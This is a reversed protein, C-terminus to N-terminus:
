FRPELKVVQEEHRYRCGQGHLEEGRPYGEVNWCKHVTKWYGSAEDFVQYRHFRLDNKGWYKSYDARAYEDTDGYKFWNMSSIEARPTGDEWFYKAVMPCADCTKTSELTLGGEPSFFKEHAYDNRYDLYKGGKVDRGCLIGEYRIQNESYFERRIGCSPIGTVNKRKNMFDRLSDPRSPSEEDPLIAQVERSLTGDEQYDKAHLDTTGWSSGTQSGEKTQIYYTLFETENKLTGNDFWQKSRSKFSDVKTLKSEGQHERAEPTSVQKVEEILQGATNWSKSSVVAWGPVGVMANQKSHIPDYLIEKILRNDVSWERVMSLSGRQYVEEKKLRGEAYWEKSAGHLFGQETAQESVVFEGDPGSSKVYVLGTYPQGDYTYLMTWQEGIPKREMRIHERAIQKPAACASLLSLVLLSFLFKM